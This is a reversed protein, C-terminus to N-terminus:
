SEGGEAAWRLALTQLVESTHIPEIGLVEACTASIGDAMEGLAAAFTALAAILNGQRAIQDKLTEGTRSKIQDMAAILLEIEDAHEDRALTILSVADTGITASSM